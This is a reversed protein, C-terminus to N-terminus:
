VPSESFLKSDILERLATLDCDPFASLFYNIRDKMDVKDDKLVSLTRDVEALEEELAKAKELNEQKVKKHNEIEQESPALNDITNKLAKFRSEAIDIMAQNIRQEVGPGEPLRLGPIPVATEGVSVIGKGSLIPAVSAPAQGGEAPGVETKSVGVSVGGALHRDVSGAPINM